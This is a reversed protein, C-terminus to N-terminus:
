LSAVCSLCRGPYLDRIACIFGKSTEYICQPKNVGRGRNIIISM